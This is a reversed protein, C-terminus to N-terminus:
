FLNNNILVQKVADEDTKYFHASNARYSIGKFKLTPYKEQLDNTLRLGIYQLFLMNSPFAGYIDNSRFLCFLYLENQRIFAQLHNLCPIDERDKDIGPIYLSAIARNSEPCKILREKIVNLQNVYGIETKSDSYPTVIAELREPYSYVFDRKLNIVDKDDISAVYDALAEGKIPYDEIDFAGNKISEIFLKPSHSIYSIDGFANDIFQCTGLIERVEVGDKNINIGDCYIWDLMNLWIKKLDSM